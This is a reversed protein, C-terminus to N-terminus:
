PGSAERRGRDLPRCPERVTVCPDCRVTRLRAVLQECRLPLELEHEFEWSFSCFRDVHDGAVSSSKSDDSTRRPDFGHGATSLRDEVVGRGPFPDDHLDDLLDGPPIGTIDSHLVAISGNLGHIATELRAIEEPTSLDCKTIVARNAYIVQRASEVHATLTTTGAVADVMVIAGRFEFMQTIRPDSKLTVLVPVPDALGSTEVVLRSFPKIRGERRRDALRRITAALDERITCCICGGKLVVTEEESSEVLEHDLGIEGFENVLVATDAFATSQLCHRLLSTKGSGLFGTLVYVPLPIESVSRSM